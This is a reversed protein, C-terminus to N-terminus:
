VFHKTAMAIAEVLFTVVSLVSMFKNAEKCCCFRKFWFQLVIFKAKIKCDM